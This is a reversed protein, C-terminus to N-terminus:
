KQSEHYRQWCQRKTKSSCLNVKCVNCGVIPRNVHRNKKKYGINPSIEQLGQKKLRRRIRNQHVADEKCIVCVAEKMRVVQHEQTYNTNRQKSHEFLDKYLAVRFAKHDTFKQKKPVDSHLSLLYANTVTINILEYFLAKWAKIQRQQIPYAARRQDGRDVQNMLKNYKFTLMPRPLDKVPENGFPVRATKAHKMNLNPRHRETIVTETGDEINSMFLCCNNDKWMLQCVQGDAVFRQETTGWPIHDRTDDAKRQTALDIHIGGRLNATGRAGYNHASLYEMLTTSTFLNDLTVSYPAKEGCSQKPLTDLLAPVVAATLNLNQPKKPVGQPGKTKAHWFLHCFYGEDAIAWGKIGTPIPKSPITVIEKARGTYRVMFEDVALESSPNWLKKATDLLQSCLPEM